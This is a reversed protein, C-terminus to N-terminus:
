TNVATLMRLPEKGMLNVMLFFVLMNMGTQILTLERVLESTMQGIEQIFIGMLRLLGEKVLELIIKGIM